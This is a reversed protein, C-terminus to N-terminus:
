REDSPAKFEAPPEVGDVRYIGIPYKIVRPFYAVRYKPDFLYPYHRKWYKERFAGDLMVLYTPRGRYREVPHDDNCLKAIVPVIPLRTDLAVGSAMDGVLVSNPPVNGQIWHEVEQRSYSLNRAWDTLRLSSVTVFLLVVVPATLRKIGNSGQKWLLLGAGIGLVTGLGVSTYGAPNLPRVALPIHFGLWGGLLLLGMRWSVLAELVRQLRVMGFGVVGALAPYFLIYYRSPSYALVSFLVVGVVLWGVLFSMGARTADEWLEKRGARLWYLVSALGFLTLIPSQRLMFSSIGRDDGLLSTVLISGFHHLNEPLLQDKLYFANVHAIEQRHPFWWLVAYFLLVGGLGFSMAKLLRLHFPSRKGMGYVVCFPVPILLAALGRVTYAMGLFAGCLVFCILTRRGGGAKWGWAFVYFALCMPLLAPTDMLAMRNYLLFVPDLLLFLTGYLAVRQNFARKLALYFVVMTLLSFLLTLIRAQLIGVGFVSFFGVQVTHLTPMILSNQFDDQQANGFLLLNRANHLYFGEDTVLAASWSLKRYPDSGLAIFRLGVGLAVAIRFLLTTTRSM